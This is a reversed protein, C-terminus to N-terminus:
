EEQNRNAIMMLLVDIIWSIVVLTIFALITLGLHGKIVVFNDGTFLDSVLFLAVFALSSILAKFKFIKKENKDNVQFLLGKAIGIILYLLGSGLFIILEGLYNNIPANVYMAKYLIDILIGISFISCCVALAQYRESQIREDKVEKFSFM